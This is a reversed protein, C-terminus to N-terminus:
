GQNVILLKSHSEKKTKYEATHTNASSINQGNINTFKKDKIRKTIKKGPLM